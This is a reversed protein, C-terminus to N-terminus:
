CLHVPLGTCGALRDAVKTNGSFHKFNQITLISYKAATMM